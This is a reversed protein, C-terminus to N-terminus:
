REVERDFNTYYDHILETISDEDLCEKVSKIWVTSEPTKPSSEGTNNKSMELRIMCTLTTSSAPRMKKASKSSDVEDEDLDALNSIEANASNSAYSGQNWSTDIGASIQDEVLGVAVTEGATRILCLALSHLISVASDSPQKLAVNAEHLGHKWLIHGLTSASRIQLDLTRWKEENFPM